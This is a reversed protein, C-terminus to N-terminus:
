YTQIRKVQPAPSASVDTNARYVESLAVGCICCVARHDDHAEDIACSHEITVCHEGAACHTNKIDGHVQECRDCWNPDRRDDSM